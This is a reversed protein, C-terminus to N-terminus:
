GQLPNKQPYDSEGITRRVVIKYQSVHMARGRYEAFGGSMPIGGQTVYIEYEVLGQITPLNSLM